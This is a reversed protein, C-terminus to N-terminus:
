QWTVGVANSLNFGQGCPGTGPDRYWFQYYRQDGAALPVLSSISQSTAAAGSADTVVLELRRVATGVCRLGDGFLFGAGGNQQANGQFFLGPRGAPAQAVSLVLSDAGLAAVGATSLLAGAGTSNACGEGPAGANGCPCPTGSGDGFCFSDNPVGLTFSVDDLVWAFDGGIEEIVVTDFGVSDSIALEAWTAIQSSNSVNAIPTGQRFGTMQFSTAQGGGSVYVSVQKATGTTFTITEPGGPSSGNSYSAIENFCLFDTGSRAPIGFGSGQNLIAGGDGPAPGSFLVGLSAYENSVAQTAGFTTPAGTGDFDIVVAQAAAGSALAPLLAALLPLAHPRLM